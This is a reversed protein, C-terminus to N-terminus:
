DIVRQLMAALATYSPLDAVSTMTAIQRQLSALQWRKKNAIQEPTLGDILMRVIELQKANLRDLMAQAELIPLSSAAITHTFHRLRAICAILEEAKPLNGDRFLSVVLM